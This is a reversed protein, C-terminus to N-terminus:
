SDQLQIRGGGKGKSTGKGEVGEARRPKYSLM